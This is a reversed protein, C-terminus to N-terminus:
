MTVIILVAASFIIDFVTLFGTFRIYTKMRGTREFFRLLPQFLVMTLLIRSFFLYWHDTFLGLVLIIAVLLGVSAHVMLHNKIPSPWDRVPLKIARAIDRYLLALVHIHMFRTLNLLFYIEYAFIGLWLFYYFATM